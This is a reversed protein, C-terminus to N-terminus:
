CVARGRRRGGKGRRCGKEKRTKKGKGKRERPAVTGRAVVKGYEPLANRFKRQDEKIINIM